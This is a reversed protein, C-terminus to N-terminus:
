KYYNGVLSILKEYVKFAQSNLTSGVFHEGLERLDRVEKMIRDLENIEDIMERDLLHYNEFCHPRVKKEYELFDFCEPDSPLGPLFRYTQAEGNAKLILNFARYRQDQRAQQQRREEIRLQSNLNLRSGFYVGSLTVIATIINSIWSSDAL